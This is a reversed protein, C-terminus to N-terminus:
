ALFHAFTSHDGRVSYSQQQENDAFNFRGFPRIDGRPVTVIISTSSWSNITALADNLTVVSGSQTSGFGSGSIVIQSGVSGTTASVSTIGPAPNSPTSLSVGDFTATALSTTSRNTVFLGVYVSTVM